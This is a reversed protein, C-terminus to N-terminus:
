YNPYLKKGPFKTSFLEFRLAQMKYTTINTHKCSSLPVCDDSATYSTHTNRTDKLGPDPRWM